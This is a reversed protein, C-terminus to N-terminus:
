SAGFQKVMDQMKRVETELKENDLLATNAAEHTQSALSSINVVNRNIEEAVASQEEAATAIQTTMATITDVARTISDLSEGAHSAQEVSSRAAQQGQEMVGVAQGAADQLKQIMVQIEDTSSQTRSALTRVEDAVVAFGRGQEGARAAEIAANLALLNTQEAIGRIVEVVSGIQESDQALKAIVTVAEEVRKALEGITNISEHVVVKGTQVEQDAVRTAEATHSANSAVDHVTATMENMATAVMEIEKAQRDMDDNTKRSIDVAQLASEELNGAADGIRWVVTELQSQLMKIALQLQGLEDARGTYVQQAIPNSFISSAEDSAARWPAAVFNAGIVGVVIGAILGGIHGIWGMSSMANSLLLAVILAAIQTYVISGTLKPTIKALFSKWFPTGNWIEQYLNEASKVYERKPKLRVSQYGVTQGNEKIQTVFADVWYHDGNKCRNKVIGMWPKDAKITDWMDKFAAPPMEPHRVINHSKGILEDETFGAISLFDDNVYTTIGKTNTTSVIRQSAPYDNERNTIPLNKKVHIGVSYFKVSYSM